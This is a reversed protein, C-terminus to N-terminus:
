GRMAVKDPFHPNINSANGPSGSLAARSLHKSGTPRPTFPFSM